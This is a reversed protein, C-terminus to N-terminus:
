GHKILRWTVWHPAGQPWGALIIALVLALAIVRRYARQSTVIKLL